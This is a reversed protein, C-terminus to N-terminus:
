DAQSQHENNPAMKALQMSADVVRGGYGLLAVCLAFEPGFKTVGYKAAVLAGSQAINELETEELRVSEVIETTAKADIEYRAATAILRGIVIKDITVAVLRIASEALKIEEPSAVNNPTDNEGGDDDDPLIPARNKTKSGKPRGRKRRVTQLADGVSGQASGSEQQIKAGDPAAEVQPFIKEDM